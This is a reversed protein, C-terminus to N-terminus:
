GGKQVEMYKIEGIVVKGYHLDYDESVVFEYEKTITQKASLQIEITSKGANRGTITYFQVDIYATVPNRKSNKIEITAVVKNNQESDVVFDKVKATITGMFGLSYLIISVGVILSITLIAFAKLTNNM